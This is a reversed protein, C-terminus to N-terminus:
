PDGTVVDEEEETQKLYMAPLGVRVLGPRVTIDSCNVHLLSLVFWSQNLVLFRKLHEQGHMALFV